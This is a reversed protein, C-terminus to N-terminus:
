LLSAATTVNPSATDINLQNLKITLEERLKFADSLEKTDYAM